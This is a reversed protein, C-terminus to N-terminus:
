LILFINARKDSKKLGAKKKQILEGVRQKLGSGPLFIDKHEQQNKLSQAKNGKHLNTLHHTNLPFM